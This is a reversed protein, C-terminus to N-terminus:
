ELPEDAGIKEWPQPQDAEPEDPRDLKIVGLDLDEGDKLTFRKLLKPEMDAAWSSRSRHKVYLQYDGAPLGAVSERVGKYGKQFGAPPTGRTFWVEGSTTSDYYQGLFVQAFAKDGLIMLTSGNGSRCRKLDASELLCRLRAGVPRLSVTETVLRKDGKIHISSAVIRFSVVNHSRQYPSSRTRKSFLLDYFGPGLDSFVARGELSVPTARRIVSYTDMAPKLEGSRIISLTGGKGAEGLNVILTSPKALSVEVPTDADTAVEVEASILGPAQARLRLKGPAVGPFVFRGEEDVRTSRWPMQGGSMWELESLGIWALVDSSKVGAPIVVRGKVDQGRKLTVNLEKTKDPVVDVTAYEEIYYGELMATIQRRGYALGMLKARGEMDTERARDLSPMNRGASISIPAVQADELPKGQTDRVTVQVAGYRQPQLRIVMNEPDPIPERMDIIYPRYGACTFVLKTPNPNKKLSIQFKRNQTSAISTYGPGSIAWTVQGLQDGVKGIVVGRLMTEKQAEVTTLDIKPIRTTEGEKVELGFVWGVRKYPHSSQVALAYPGPTLQIVQFDIGSHINCGGKRSDALDILKYRIPSGSLFQQVM